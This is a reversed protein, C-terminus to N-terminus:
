LTYLWHHISKPVSQTALLRLRLMKSLSSKFRCQANKYAKFALFTATHLFAVIGVCFLAVFLTMSSLRLCSRENLILVEKKETNDIENVRELNLLKSLAVCLLKKFSHSASYEILLHISRNSCVIIRNMSCMLSHICVYYLWRRM